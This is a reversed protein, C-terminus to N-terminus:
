DKKKRKRWKYNRNNIMVIRLSVFFLNTNNFENSKTLLNAGVQLHALSIKYGLTPALGIRSHDFDTKYVLNAGYTLNLRGRKQWYGASFGLVNQTLNYDFGTNFAHTTPKIIKVAKRQFEYGLELNTYKGSQLGLYPGTKFIKVIPKKKPFGLDDGAFINSCSIFILATLLYISKKM